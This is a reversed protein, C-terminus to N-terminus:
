LEGHVPSIEGFPGRGDSSGGAERGASEFAEMIETASRVAGASGREWAGDQGHAGGDGGRGREEGESQRPAFSVSRSARNDATQPRSGRMSPVLTRPRILSEQLPRDDGQREAGDTGSERMEKRMDRMAKVVM